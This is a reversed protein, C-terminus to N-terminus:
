SSSKESPWISWLFLIGGCVFAAIGAIIMLYIVYQPPPAPKWEGYRTTLVWIVTWVIGALAVSGGMIFAPLSKIRM